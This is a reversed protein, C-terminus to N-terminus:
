DNERKELLFNSIREATMVTTLNTPLSPITPFLSADAVTVGELGHISGQEDAATEPDSVVGMRITGSAHWGPSVLNKIANCMVSDNYIMSESWFQIGDLYQAVESNELIEWIKRVGGVLRAIDAEDRDLPLDILPLVRPDRTNIFVKGKANPRMLMVSAGVLLPYDTRNQFGPVTRSAVNNMLGIQVDVHEDYGSCVRAAIQRWPTNKKCNTVKPLAWLVVSAHDTLNSGIAPIDAVVPIDLSHLLNADGIGSRQLIAVSGIAGACLVVNSTNFTCIDEEKIVDISVVKNGIFNIRDVTVDTFVHLNNRNIVPALYARYLDFREAGQFINSPVLGVAPNEGSNLDDTYSIGMMQCVSSFALDIPSIDEQKPRCLHLLGEKGHENSDNLNVDNEIHKFWPLVDNWAWRSCGMAVWRQFDSPLARLAVAGNIASSGGLVKGLRYAFPKRKKQQSEINCKENFHLVQSYRDEGHVNAEYGWNYGELVLRSADRLPSSPNHVDSAPGAEILLVSSKGDESLRAATVCGSSGGGVVIYDYYNLNM